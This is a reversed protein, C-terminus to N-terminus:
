LPNLYSNQRELEELLQAGIRLVEPYIIVEETGYTITVGDHIFSDYEISFFAGNEDNCSLSTFRKTNLNEM